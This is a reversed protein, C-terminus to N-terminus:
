DQKLTELSCNFKDLGPEECARCSLMAPGQVETVNFVVEKIGGHQHIYLTCTGLNKINHGGYSTIKFEAPSLPRKHPSPILRDPDQKSIVNSAGTDIKCTLPLTQTHSPSVSIRIETMVKTRCYEGEVTAFHSTDPKYSTPSGQQATLTGSLHYRRRWKWVPRKTNGHCKFKEKIHM